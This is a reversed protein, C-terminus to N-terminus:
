QTLLALVELYKKSTKLVVDDPLKPAPAKQDWTLSLLYDRVFQKDYSKQSVGVTYGEM